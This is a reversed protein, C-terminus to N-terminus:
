KWFPEKRPDVSKGIERENLVEHATRRLEKRTFWSWIAVAIVSAVVDLVLKVVKNM